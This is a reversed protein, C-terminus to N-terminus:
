RSRVRHVTISTTLLVMALDLVCSSGNLFCVVVRHYHHKSSSPLQSNKEVSLRGHTVLEPSQLTANLGCRRGGGVVAAACCRVRHQCSFNLQCDLLLLIFPWLLQILPPPTSNYWLHSLRATSLPPRNYFFRDLRMEILVYNIMLM